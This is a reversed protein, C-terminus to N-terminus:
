NSIKWKVSPLHQTSKRLVHQGVADHRKNSNIFMILRFCDSGIVIKWECM